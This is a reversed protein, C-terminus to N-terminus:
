RVQQIRDDAWPKRVNTERVSGASREPGYIVTISALIHDFRFRASQLYANHRLMTGESPTARDQLIGCDKGTETTRRKDVDRRGQAQLMGVSRDGKWEEPM